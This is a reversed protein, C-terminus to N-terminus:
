RFQPHSGLYDNKKNIAHFVSQNLLENSKRLLFKASPSAFVKPYRSHWTRHIFENVPWLATSIDALNHHLDFM